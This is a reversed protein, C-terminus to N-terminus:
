KKKWSPCSSSKTLVTHAPIDKSFKEKTKPNTFTATNAKVKKTMISAAFDEKALFTFKHGTEMYNYLIESMLPYMWEAKKFKYDSVFKEAEQTDIGYEVLIKKIDNRFDDVPTITETVVEGKKTKHASAEYGVENLLSTALTNFDVKSFTSKETTLEKLTKEFNSM